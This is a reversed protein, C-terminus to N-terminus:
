GTQVGAEYKPPGPNLYPGQFWSDENLKKVTKRLGVLFIGPCYMLNLWLLKLGYGEFNM